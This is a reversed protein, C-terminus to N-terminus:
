RPKPIIGELCDPSDPTIPDAVPPYDLGEYLSLVYRLTNVGSLGEIDYQQGKVYVANLIRCSDKDTIYFTHMLSCDAHYRIGHDSMVIIISDPDNEIITSISAMMHKSIFKYQGLYVETDEWDRSKSGSILGGYEDFTFPVHTATMYTYTVRPTTATYNAPDEFYDFIRLVSCAYDYNSRDEYTSRIYDSPYFGWENLADTDVDVDSGNDMGGLLESLAGSISNDSVIEGSDDGELAIEELAEQGADSNLSVVGNIYHNNTSIQFETYGMESFITNLPANSSADLCEDKSLERSIYDLNLLDCISHETQNDTSYSERSVNFGEMELFDNFVANDYGYYKSLIEFSSYEDLIFFYVNPQGFSEPTLTPTVENGTSDTASSSVTSSVSPTAASSTLAAAQSVDPTTKGMAIFALVANFLVLGTFTAALIKDIVPVPFGKKYILRLLFFFGAILALYLIIGGLAAYYYTNVFLRFFNVLWNFNVALFAGVAVFTCAFYPKHLFLRLIAFVAISIGMYLWMTRGLAAFSVEGVNNAYLHVTPLACIAALLIVSFILETVFTRVARKKRSKLRIDANYYKHMRITAKKDARKM